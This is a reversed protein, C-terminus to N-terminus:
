VGLRWRKIRRSTNRKEPATKPEALRWKRGATALSWVRLGNTVSSGDKLGRVLARSAAGLVELSQLNAPAPPLNFDIFFAAFDLPLNASGSGPLGGEGKPRL